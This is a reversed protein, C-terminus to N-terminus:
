PKSARPQQKKVAPALLKLALEYSGHVLANQVPSLNDARALRPLGCLTALLLWSLWRSRM